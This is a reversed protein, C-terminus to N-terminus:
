IHILSLIILKKMSQERCPGISDRGLFVFRADPIKKVVLPIARALNYVGKRTELRGIYLISKTDSGPSITLLEKSPFYPNPVLSIKEPEIKWREQIIEKLSVSPSLIHDAQLTALYENDKKYHYTFGMRRKLRRWWVKNYYHDNLEKILFRPTHLKIIVPVEPLVNKLHLSPAGFEPCEIIDIKKVDHLKKATPPALERFEETSNCRIKTISLYPSESFVGEQDPSACIVETEIGKKAFSTSLQYMYTGIGGIATDPPYEYTILCIRM